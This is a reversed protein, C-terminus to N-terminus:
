DADHGPAAIRGPITASDASGTGQTLLWAITQEDQVQTTDGTLGAVFVWQDLDSGQFRVAYSSSLGMPSIDVVAPEGDSSVRSGVRVEAVRYGGPWGVHCRMDDHRGERRSVNNATLDFVIQASRGYRQAFLRSSADFARLDEVADHSRAMKLAGLFHLVAASALLAMLLVALMVEVLTFGREARTSPDSNRSAVFRRPAPGRAQADHSSGWGARGRLVPPLFCHISMARNRM